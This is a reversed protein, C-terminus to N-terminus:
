SVCLMDLSTLYDQSVNWGTSCNYGLFAQFVVKHWMMRQCKWRFLFPFFLPEIFFNSLFCLFIQNLPSLHLFGQRTPCQTARRHPLTATRTRAFWSVPLSLRARRLGNARPTIWTAEACVSSRQYSLLWLFVQLIKFYRSTDQFIKFYRMYWCTDSWNETNRSSHSTGKPM